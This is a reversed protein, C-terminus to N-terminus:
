MSLEVAVGVARHRQDLPDDQRTDVWCHVGSDFGDRESVSASRSERLSREAAVVRAERGAPAGRSHGGNRKAASHPATSSARSRAARPHEDAAAPLRATGGGIPGPHLRQARVHALAVDGRQARLESGAGGFEGLDDGFQALM